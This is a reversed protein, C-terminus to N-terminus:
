VGKGVLGLEGQPAVKKFNVAQGMNVPNEHQDFKGTDSDFSGLEFLTFDAPYKSMVSQGDNVIEEWSRLAAGAHPVLFPNM